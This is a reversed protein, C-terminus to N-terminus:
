LTELCVETTHINYVPPWSRPRVHLESLHFYPNGKGQQPAWASSLHQPM